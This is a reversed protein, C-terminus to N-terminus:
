FYSMEIKVPLQHMFRQKLHNQVNSIVVITGAAVPVDNAVVAPHGDDISAADEDVDEM